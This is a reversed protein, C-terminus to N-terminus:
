PWSPSISSSGSNHGVLLKRTLFHQIEISKSYPFFTSANNMPGVTPGATANFSCVSVGTIGACLYLTAEADGGRFFSSTLGNESRLPRLENSDIDFLARSHDGTSSFGAVHYATGNSVILQFSGTTQDFSIPLQFPILASGPLDQTTLSFQATDSRLTKTLASRSTSSSLDVHQLSAGSLIEKVVVMFQKSPAMAAYRPIFEPPCAFGQLALMKSESEAGLRVFSHIAVRTSLGSTCGSALISGDDIKFFDSLCSPTNAGFDLIKSSMLPARLESLNLRYLETGNESITVLRIQASLSASTAILGETRFVETPPCSSLPFSFNLSLVDPSTAEYSFIDVSVISGNNRTKILFNEPASFMDAGLLDPFDRDTGFTPQLRGPYRAFGLQLPSGGSLNKEGFKLFLFPKQILSSNVFRM